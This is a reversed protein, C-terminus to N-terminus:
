SERHRGGIIFYVCVFIWLGAGVGYKAAFSIVQSSSWFAEIFAAILLMLMVGYMIHMSEIGAKRLAHVRSMNGPALISYGLKLGAAGSFVIATLEFAGHGIVFSYFTDSYGLDTLHGAVVGMIIGNYALFFISGIGVLVGSAFTRFSIGINNRIYFGFMVIDDDSQRESGIHEVDPNYMSEYMGAQEPSFVSYILEPYHYTYGGLILAPMCFIVAAIFVYRWEQRIIKSFDAVVFRIITVLLNTKRKYLQQHGRIALDNLFEILYSSYQRQKAISLCHCLQRYIKSFEPISREFLVDKKSRAVKMRAGELVILIHELRQWQGRYLKEFNQQKM